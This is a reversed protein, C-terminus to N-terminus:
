RILVLGIDEDRARRSEDAKVDRLPQQLEAM